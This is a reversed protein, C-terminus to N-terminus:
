KTEESKYVGKKVEEDNKEKSDFCGLGTAITFLFGSFILGVTVYELM